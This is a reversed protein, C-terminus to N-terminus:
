KVECVGRRQNDYRDGLRMSQWKGTPTFKSPYVQKSTGNAYGSQDAIYYEPKPWESLQRQVCSIQKAYASGISFMTIIFVPCILRKMSTKAIHKFILVILWGGLGSGTRGM